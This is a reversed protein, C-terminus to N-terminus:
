TSNTERWQPAHTGLPVSPLSWRAPTASLQAAHRVATLRGFGSDSDELLDSIEDQAPAEGDFGGTLRGLDCIWRGTRALSVKVHWSGGEDRRRIMAMIAGLAMLYGSAHDLTQCPLPKPGELGACSAEETNFGSATQVISDFGRRDAWPGTTGFASLSVYIIGPRIAALAAPSFGLAAISGPRYGQIFM